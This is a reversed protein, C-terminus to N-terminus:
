HLLFRIPKDVSWCLGCTGCCDTKGTQVPCIIGSDGTSLDTEKDRESWRVWWRQPFMDRVTELAIGISTGMERATYGFVHLQPITQMWWGWLYVYHPDYFDGLIHLRVVFGRPNEHALFELERQLKAELLEGAVHRHPFHMHNGYCDQWHQCSRPCTAREELTLTYIPMGAWRGKVVHSGLKRQHEGSKLVREAADTVRSPFITRGEIVAPHDARLTLPKGIKNHDNFRRKVKEM